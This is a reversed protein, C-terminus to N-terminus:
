IYYAGIMSRSEDLDNFVLNKIGEERDSTAVSRWRLRIGMTTIPIKENQIKVAGDKRKKDIVPQLEKGGFIMGNGDIILGLEFGTSPNLNNLDVSLHKIHIDAISLRVSMKSTNNRVIVSCKYGCNVLVNYPHGGIMVYGQAARGSFTCLSENTEGKWVKSNSINLGVIELAGTKEFRLLNDSNGSFNGFFYYCDKASQIDDLKKAVNIQTDYAHTNWLKWEDNNLPKIPSPSGGQKYFSRTLALTSEPDFEVDYQAYRSVSFSGLVRFNEPKKSLVLKFALHHTVLANLGVDPKLFEDKITCGVYMHLEDEPMFGRFDMLNHFYLNIDDFQIDITNSKEDIKQLVIRGNTGEQRIFPWITNAHKQRLYGDIHFVNLNSPQKAEEKTFYGEGGSKTFKIKQTLRLYYGSLDGYFNVKGSQYKYTNGFTKASENVAGVLGDVRSVDPTITSASAGM